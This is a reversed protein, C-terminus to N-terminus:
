THLACLPPFLFKLPFVASSSLVKLSSRSAFGKLIASLQQPFCLRQTVCFAAFYFRRLRSSFSIHQYTQMYFIQRQHFFRLHFKAAPQINQGPLGSGSFGNNDTRNIKSQSFFRRLFHQPFMRFIRQHFQNESHIILLLPFQQRFHINKRFIILNDHGPFNSRGAAYPFDIGFCYRSGTHLLCSRIQNINMSLM